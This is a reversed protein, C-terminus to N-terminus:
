LVEAFLVNLANPESFDILVLADDPLDEEKVLIQSLWTPDLYTLNFKEALQVAIEKAKSESIASGRLVGKEIGETTYGGDSTSFHELGYSTVFPGRESVHVHISYRYEWMPSMQPVMKWNEDFSLVFRSSSSYGFGATSQSYGLEKQLFSKIKEFREIDLSLSAKLYTEITELNM